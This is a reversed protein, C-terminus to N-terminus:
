QSVKKNWDAASLQPVVKAILRMSQLANAHAEPPAGCADAAVIVEFGMDVAHRVTSEVVSHTAVGAVVLRQANLKRLIVELDSGYFANIRKHSVVFEASHNVLPELGTYFQAGWSGDQMAGMQKVAELIPANCILDAYDPRYAVRVHVIPVHTQRAQSLLSAAATIVRQRDPSNAEIGVRIKGEEHLVENQYHLALLVTGM